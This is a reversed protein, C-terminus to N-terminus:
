TAQLTTNNPRLHGSGGSWTAYPTNAMSGALQVTGYAASVSQSPGANVTAVGGAVFGTVPTSPGQCGIASTETVYYTTTASLTPAYTPGTNVLHTLGSDSWW